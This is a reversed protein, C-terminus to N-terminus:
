LDGMRAGATTYPMQRSRGAPRYCPRATPTPDPIGCRRAAQEASEYRTVTVLQGNIREQAQSLVHPRLEPDRYDKLPPHPM